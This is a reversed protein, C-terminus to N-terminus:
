SNGAQSHGKQGELWESELFIDFDYGAGHCHKNRCRWLESGGFRAEYVIEDMRYTGGCHICFVRLDPQTLDPSFPDNNASTSM